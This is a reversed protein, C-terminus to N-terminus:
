IYQKMLKYYKKVGIDGTQFYSSKFYYKLFIAQEASLILEDKWKKVFHGDVLKNDQRLHKIATMYEDFTITEVCHLHCKNLFPIRRCDIITDIAPTDITPNWLQEIISEIRPFMKINAPDNRFDIYGDPIASKRPRSLTDHSMPKYPSVYVYHETKTLYSERNVTFEPSKLAEHAESLLRPYKLYDAIQTLLPAKHHSYFWVPVYKENESKDNKNFYFEFVWMIGKLYETIIHELKTDKDPDNILDIKFVSKYYEITGKKFPCETITYRMRDAFKEYVRGLTVTGMAYDSANLLGEWSGMKRELEYCKIDYKTISMEPHPLKDYINTLHWESTASNDHQQLNFNLNFTGTLHKTKAADAMINACKWYLKDTDIMNVNNSRYRGELKVYYMIIEDSVKIMKSMLCGKIYKKLGMENQNYKVNEEIFKFIKSSESVYLKIKEYIKDTGFVRKLFNYNKYTNALYTECLLSQEIKAMEQIIFILNSYEMKFQNDEQYVIRKMEKTTNLMNCYNAMITTVDHRADISEIKPVFDNGFLTFLLSVDLAVSTKSIASKDIICKEVYAFINDILKTINVTDYEISQQNYRLVSFDVDKGDLSLMSQCIMALIIVDADPSFIIYSGNSKELLIEEIIKKEGEGAVNHTSVFYQTLNPCAEKIAKTLNDSTLLTAVDDMFSTGSTIKSRDHGVKYQEFLKRIQPLEADGDIYKERIKQKLGSVIRGMYRRRKQEVVKSMQPVGDIAVYIKKIKKSDILNTTMFIMYKKIRDLAIEDIKDPTFYERYKDVTAGVFDLDKAIRVADVTESKDCLLAYLLYQLEDDLITAVTYVISNFDVYLSDCNLKKELGLTIGSNTKLLNNRAISNFFREIGM